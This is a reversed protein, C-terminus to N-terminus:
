GKAVTLFAEQSHFWGDPDRWFHWLESGTRVVGDLNGPIGYNSQIVTAADIPGLDELFVGSQIWPRNPDDNNRWIHALGGGLVPVVSEFNGRQGFHGQVLSAAGAATTSIPYTSTVWGYPGRQVYWVNPGSRALVGLDGPFGDLTSQILAVDDVIGLEAAFQTGSSWPFAEAYDDNNRWFHALGGEAIPTVLEFNGRQGFHGQVLTPTGRAGTTIPTLSEDAHWGDGGRWFHWLQDGIRYVGELIGPDFFNGQILSAAEITLDTFFAGTENWPLNPDDNNRWLHGLGGFALPIVVEFNGRGGYEGQVMMGGSRTMPFPQNTTLQGSTTPFSESMLSDFRVAGGLGGTLNGYAEELGSPLAIPAGAAIITPWSYKLEYRLFNLFLTACSNAVNDTDSFQNYTIWDPRGSPLPNPNGHQPANLWQLAYGPQTKQEDRYAAFALAISLGEGKSLSCDWAGGLNTAFVEEAEAVMILRTWDLDATSIGPSCDLVQASCGSHSGGGGPPGTVLVAFRDPPEYNFISALRAYDAECSQVVAYAFFSGNPLTNDWFVDFHATSDAKTFGVPDEPTFAPHAVPLGAQLSVFVPASTLPESMAPM